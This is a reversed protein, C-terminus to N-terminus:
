QNAPQHNPVHEEMYQSYDGLQSIHKLITSVVLWNFLDHSTSAPSSEAADNALSCLRHSGAPAPSAHRLLSMNQGM